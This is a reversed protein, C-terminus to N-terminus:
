IATQIGLIREVGEVITRAESKTVLKASHVVQNRLKIWDLIDGHGGIKGLSIGRDQPPVGRSM